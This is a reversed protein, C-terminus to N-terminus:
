EPLLALTQALDARGHIGLKEYVRQLHNEVTRSSVFLREAIERSPMGRGALEAVERERRTLPTMDEDVIALAPTRAGQCRQGLRVARQAFESARRALGVRRAARAGAAAAEAGYLWAGMTEFAGAAGDLADLDQSVIARVHALRSRVLLGDCLADIETLRDLVEDAWGLRAVDHLAAAELAFRGTSRADAAAHRLIDRALTLEGRQAVVWARARDLDPDMLRLTTPPETALDAAAAEAGDLDGELALAMALGGYGWRAGAHNMDGFVVAAERAWRAATQTEGRLLAIRGLAVALWAQGDSVHRETAADYGVRGLEEAEDLAGAELMALVLAVVYIGPGALQVQDGLAVRLDFARSAIERARDTQGAVTCAVAVPLAGLVYTRDDDAELLPEALVLAEATRGEFAAHVARQARLEGVLAPDAVEREAAVLIEESERARGLGRFLNATRALVAIVRQRDDTALEQAQALMSEADEHRGLQDLTEGLLYATEASPAQAHAARALREALPVDFAFRAHRAGDLLTGPRGGGGDLRWLAVRLTDERRRAGQQEVRDALSRAVQQRRRVPLGARVVEGYIPHAMRVQQRAGEVVVEVLGRRELEDIAHAPVLAELDAVAVPEGVSVVELAAREANDLSGIRLGVVEGLRTSPSLTGSLRWMGSSETFARADVAGIVLERLFLANGGSTAWLTQATLGDVHGGLADGVLSTVDEVALTPVDVRVLLEDKWLATLHAPASWEETRVTVVLFVQPDAALLGLLAGSSEDLEQADDVVLLLTADGAAAVVAATAGRLAAGHGEGSSASAAPLLPAFAGFPITAASRNARVTATPWGRAEALGLTETALRTKGVGAPGALLVGARVDDM